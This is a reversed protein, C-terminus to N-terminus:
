LKKMLNKSTEGAITIFISYQQCCHVTFGNVAYVIQRSIVLPEKKLFM